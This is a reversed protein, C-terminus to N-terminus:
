ILDHDGIQMHAFEGMALAKAVAQAFNSAGLKEQASRIVLNVAVEGLGLSEAIAKNSFGQIAFLMVTAQLTTLKKAEFLTALEPFRSIMATAIQCIATMVDERVQSGVRHEDIGVSFVAIGRGIIVPVALVMAYSLKDVESLFRQFMFDPHDSKSIQKWDFPRLRWQAERKIPCGGLEQMKPALDVLAQPLNRFPRIAPVSDDNSCFIVSVLDVDLHRFYEQAIDCADRLNSSKSLRQLTARIESQSTGLVDDKTVLKLM